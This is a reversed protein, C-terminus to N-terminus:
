RRSGQLCVETKVLPLVERLAFSLVIYESEATTLSIETQLSVVWYVPYNAYMIVMGIRSIANDVNDGVGQSSGGAFGADM